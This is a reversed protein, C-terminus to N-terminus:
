YVPVSAPSEGYRGMGSDYRSREIHICLKSGSDRPFHPAHNHICIPRLLYARKLAKQAPKRRRQEWLVQGLKHYAGGTLPSTEGCTVEYTRIAAIGIDNNIGYLTM